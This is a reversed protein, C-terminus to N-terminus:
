TTAVFGGALRLALVEPMHYRGGLVVTRRDLHVLPHDGSVAAAIAVVEDRMESPMTGFISVGPADALFAVTAADVTVVRAQDVGLQVKHM